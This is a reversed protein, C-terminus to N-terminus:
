ISILCKVTFMLQLDTSWGLHATESEKIVSKLSGYLVIKNKEEKNEETDQKSIKRRKTTNCAPM